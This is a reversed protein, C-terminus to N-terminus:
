RQRYITNALSKTTFTRKRACNPTAERLDFVPQSSAQTTLHRQYNTTPPLVRKLNGPHLRPRLM